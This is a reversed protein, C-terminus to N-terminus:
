SSSTCLSHTATTPRHAFSYLSFYLLPASYSSVSSTFSEIHFSPPLHLSLAGHESNCVLAVGCCHRGLSVKRKCEQTIPLRDSLGKSIYAALKSDLCVKYKRSAEAYECMSVLFSLVKQGTWARKWGECTWHAWLAIRM